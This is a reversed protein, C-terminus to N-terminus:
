THTVNFQYPGFNFLFKNLKLLLM